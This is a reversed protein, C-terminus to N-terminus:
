DRALADVPDLQAARRAPLFGFVVGILTSCLFAAAMAGTSYM